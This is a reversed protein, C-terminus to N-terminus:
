ILFFFREKQIKRKGWMMRVEITVGSLEQQGFGNRASPRLRLRLRLQPQSSV